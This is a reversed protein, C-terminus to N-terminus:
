LPREKGFSRLDCRFGYRAVELGVGPGCVGCGQIWGKGGQIWGKGGWLTMRTHGVLALLPPTSPIYLPDLPSKSPTYLPHLPPTSPTWLPDLPPRSPTMRKYGVLALLHSSQRVTQSGSQRVAQSGSQRVAQSGSRRVAQGGSRRVTDLPRARAARPAARAARRARNAAASFLFLSLRARGRRHQTPASM